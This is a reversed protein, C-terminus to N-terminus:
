PRLSDAVAAVIARAHELDHRVQARSFHTGGYEIRNRFRRMRDLEAAAPTDLAGAAYAATVAHAGPANRAR